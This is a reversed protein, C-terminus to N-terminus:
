FLNGLRFHLQWKPDPRGLLDVRDFGYGLDLGLPGLPTILAVGFGAGRFLRTPNFERPRNWINGADFFINTYVQQNVRLGLEATTTFFASGFSEPRARNSSTGPLVGTPTISFEDYGRLMEGYQTGGLAFKQSVFFPGVDGFVAGARATLGLVFTAPQSGPRGGGFQGVTAYSRVEGTYRQFSATGGLPGGNFQASLTQLGGATAFPLGIRTDHTGAIGITSRFGDTFRLSSDRSFLGGSYKVREGGYSLSLRSFLSGPVPFGFQLSGGTRTQRGLDGVIFRSRTHYISTTGSIRSQRISPDTYSLTFDNIYQGFQWQLSGRKCQGFLNPQDLGLFGGLGTGQGVSAGFNINGTRREKVNFIIDIDGQENAQRTDPPPLPQEFFGLNAINHYSRILRDQNFVDGPLILLQDRICSETTYDNGAIDIRNVISPTREEIEWRLNVVHVTDGDLARVERDVVPRVSAQIYGENAYATRLRETAQQWLERDFADDAGGGNTGGRPLLGRLQQTFSAQREDFPYFRRIEESSFRRNGVPEFNGVVYRPGEEVRLELLAKGRERDVILTDQLVQFDIFGERAYLTPIREGLDAAFKDDDFEGKQFWWFGEPRTRMAKVIQQDSLQENGLVGVGSIALRRGEDIRFTLRIAGDSMTTDARVQALYYGNAEYLSDIRYAVRAVQGPDVPRGVLVDVRERVTRAPLASVGTVRVDALVPREVVQIVVIAREPGQGLECLVQVDDFQGTAFLNEVSRQVSRYSLTDGPNIGADLRVTAAPVRANGRVTVSDPRACADAATPLQIQASAVSATLALTLVAAPAALLSRSM